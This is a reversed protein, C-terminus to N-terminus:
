LRSRIYRGAGMRTGQYVFRVMNRTVRLLWLSSSRFFIYIVCHVADCWCPCYMTNITRAQLAKDSKLASIVAYFSLVILISHLTDVIYVTHFLSLRIRLCYAVMMACMSIIMVVNMLTISGPKSDDPQLRSRIYRGVDM